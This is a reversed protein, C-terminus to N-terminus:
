GRDRALLSRLVERLKEPLRSRFSMIEGTEPHPLSLKWAHLFIRDGLLREPGGSVVKRFGYLRDGVLPAGLHRLHVRIQHTRGTHLGCAVFSYEGRTWLPTVDTVAPRGLDSVAMRYRNKEDRGIPEDVRLPAKIPRGRALALYTKGVLRNRFAEQLVTLASATRAVVLLGSTTGDLRHVIGPRMVDNITGIDPFRHLLGHVLTGRWHGPAPHVVVGAPKDVVVMCSDEYVVSFPVPEPVIDLWRPPPIQLFCIEGGQLLRSGKVSGPGDFQLNGERILRQVFSRSLGLRDALYRDLRRGRAELEVLLREQRGLAQGEPLSEADCSEVPSSLREDRDSM